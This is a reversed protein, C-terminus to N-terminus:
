PLSSPLFSRRPSPGTCRPAPSRRPRDCIIHFSFILVKADVACPFVVEFVDIEHDRAVLEHHHRANGAGALRAERKVRDVRLSLPAIDLAKRRIRAHEDSLHVLRVHIADVSKRGCDRDVLLARPVVRTRRDARDRLDVVIQAKQVRAAANRVTRVAAAHDFALRDVRDHILDRRQRLSRPHLDDRRAHAASLALMLLDEFAQLALAIHAHADVALHIRDLFRGSQVLLFLM